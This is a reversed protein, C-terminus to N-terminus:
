YRVEVNLVAGNEQDFKFDDLEWGRPAEYAALHTTVKGLPVKFPNIGPRLTWAVGNVLMTQPVGTMNNVNLSAQTSKAVQHRFQSSIQMNSLINPVFNQGDSTAVQELKDANSNIQTQLVDFTDPLSELKDYIKQLSGTVTAMNGELVAVRERLTKIEAKLGDVESTPPTQAQAFLPFAILALIALVTCRM